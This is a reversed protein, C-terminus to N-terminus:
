SLSRKFGVSADLSSASTGGRRLAEVVRQKGLVDVLLAPAAVQQREDAVPDAIDVRRGRRQALEGIEKGPDHPAAGGIGLVLQRRAQVAEDTGPLVADLSRAADPDHGHPRHGVLDAAVVM